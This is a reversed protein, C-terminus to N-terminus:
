NLKKIRETLLAFFGNADIARCVTANPKRDAVRWWDIITMGM